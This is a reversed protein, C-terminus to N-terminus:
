EYRLSRVPNILAAKIVQLGVTMLAIILAIIGAILYIWWEIQIRYAFNELWANMAYWAVPWAILNAVVVWRTFQGSLLIVLGSISAGLVKRIGIERIRREVMFAALGLLGLCGIFIALFAFLIFLNKTRMENIYLNNYDEDFFSYEFPLQPSFGAWVNDIKYITESINNTNTRVAIYRPTWHFPSNIHMFAMPRIDTHMSEYHLDAVVGIVELYIRSDSWSNVKKGIPDDWGILKVAAENLVIGSTDTGFEHSFYRGQVINFKFVDQFDPDSMCLNLTYGGEFGEAGFGINNFRIGPLRNSVSAHQVAPIKLLENKFADLDDVIMNANKIVIVQEKDFGLRENQIFDLQRSIM